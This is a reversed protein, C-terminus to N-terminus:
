RFARITFWISLISVVPWILMLDVRINAEPSFTVVLWEWAAYIAWAAAAVILARPHHFSGLGTIRLLFHVLLFVGAVALIHVPKGVFLSSLLDM